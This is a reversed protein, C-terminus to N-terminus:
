PRKPLALMSSKDSHAEHIITSQPHQFESENVIDYEEDTDGSVDDEREETCTSEESDSHALLYDQINLGAKQM